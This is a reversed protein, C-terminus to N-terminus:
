GYKFPGKNSYKSPLVVRSTKYGRGLGLATRYIHVQRGSATLGSSYESGKRANSTNNIKVGPGVRDGFNNTPGPLNKSDARNSHKMVIRNFGSGDPLSTQKSPKSSTRRSKGGPVSAGMPPTYSPVRRPPKYNSAM